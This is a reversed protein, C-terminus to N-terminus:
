LLHPGLSQSPRVQLPYSLFTASVADPHWSINKHFVAHYNKSPWTSSNPRMHRPSYKSCLGRDDFQSCGQQLTLQCACAAGAEESGEESAEGKEAAWWELPCNEVRLVQVKRAQPCERSLSCFRSSILSLWWVTKKGKVAMNMVILASHRLLTMSSRCAQGGMYLMLPYPSGSVSHTLLRGELAPSM